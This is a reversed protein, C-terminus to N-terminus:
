HFYINISTLSLSNQVSTGMENQLLLYKQWKGACVSFDLFTIPLRMRKKLTYKILTEKCCVDSILM